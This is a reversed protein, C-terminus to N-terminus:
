PKISVKPVEDILVSNMCCQMPCLLNHNLGKMEIVQNILFIVVQSTEPKTYTVTADVICAHKSRVKPNYGFVNVPRIHDHIVPVLCQDGIVFTDKHLNLEIKTKVVALSKQACLQVTQVSTCSITYMDVSSM